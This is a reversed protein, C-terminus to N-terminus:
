TYRTNEGREGKDSSHKESTQKDQFDELFEYKFTVKFQRSDPHTDEEWHNCENTEVCKSFVREAADIIPSYIAGFDSVYM